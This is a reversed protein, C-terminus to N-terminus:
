KISGSSTSNVSVMLVFLARVFNSTGISAAISQLALLSWRLSVKPPRSVRLDFNAHMTSALSDVLFCRSPVWGSSWSSWKAPFPTWQTTVIKHALENRHRLCHFYRFRFGCHVFFPFLELFHWCPLQRFDPAFYCTMWSACLTPFVTWKAASMPCKDNWSYPTPVVIEFISLGLPVDLHCLSLRSLSKRLIWLALNTQMALSPRLLLPRSLLAVLIHLVLLLRLILKCWVWFPPHVLEMSCESTRIDLCRSVDVVVGLPVFRPGTLFVGDNRKLSIQITM